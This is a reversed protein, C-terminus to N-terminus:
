INFGRIKQVVNDLSNYIEESTFFLVNWGYKSFYKTRQEIYNEVSGYDQIKYYDHFIEIATKEGNVNIYDPIKTGIIFTGNGTFKYPLNNQQIVNSFYQELSNPSRCLSMIMKRISEETHHKGYFPNNVGKNAISINQKWEATHKTGIKSLSIKKRVELRKAPNKDGLKSVGM